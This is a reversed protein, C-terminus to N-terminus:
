WHSDEAYTFSQWIIHAMRLGSLMTPDYQSGYTLAALPDSTDSSDAAHYGTLSTLLAYM